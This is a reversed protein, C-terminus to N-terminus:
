PTAPTILRYFRRQNAGVPDLVEAVRNSIDMDVSMQNHLEVWGLETENTQPHYM